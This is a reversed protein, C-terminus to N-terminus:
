PASHPLSQILSSLELIELHPPCDPWNHQWCVIVDCGTLSHGHSRFNRSEFEFELHVRQWRELGIQRKAECDPFGSQVAEVTYGLEKAVMGFLLVVGQENVPEHRLGRFDMPHGYIPRGRLHPHRIKAPRSSSKGSVAPKRSRFSFSRGPGSSPALRAPPKLAQPPLLALVDAWERKGQAFKCFAERVKSWCGFRLELTRRAFKGLKYYARGTPVEGEKRVAQGWDELLERDEHRQNRTNPELGAARVAANWNPFFRLVTSEPIGTSSLFERRSPTRRRHRAIAVLADLVRRKDPQPTM